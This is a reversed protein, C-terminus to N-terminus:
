SDVGLMSASFLRLKQAANLRVRSVKITEVPTKAIKTLLASYYARSLRVPRQTAKPLRPIAKNAIEFDVMIDKIIANKAAEDFSEFQYGPFYLRNLETADAALDRLFNVKQYAAGLHCAGDTLSDYTAKNDGCFVSLCMLGIVEASGHIYEAYLAPTYTQPSLDMRMSHFFAKVLKTDINFQRMTLGFAHVIPNASYGIKIARLVDLELNDLLETSAPGAYSDVIEDTIRVLGYINYIHHRITVPFLFTSSGFSTSYREMIRRSLDQSVSNYLEM